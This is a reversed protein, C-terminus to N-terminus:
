RTSIHRTADCGVKGWKRRRLVKVKPYHGMPYLQPIAMGEKRGENGKELDLSILGDILSLNLSRDGDLSGVISDLFWRDDNM